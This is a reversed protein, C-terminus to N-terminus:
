NVQNSDVGRCGTGIVGLCYNPIFTRNQLNPHYYGSRFYFLFFASANIYHLISIFGRM